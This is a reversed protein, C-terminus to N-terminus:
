LMKNKRLDRTNGKPRKAEPRIRRRSRTMNCNRAVRTLSQMVGLGPCQLVWCMCWYTACLCIIMSFVVLVGIFLAVSRLLTKDSENLEVFSQVTRKEEDATSLQQTESPNLLPLSEVVYCYVTLLVFTACVKWASYVTRSM